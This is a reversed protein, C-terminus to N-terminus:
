TTYRSNVRINVPRGQKLPTKDQSNIPYVTSICYFTVSKFIALKKKIYLTFQIYSIINVPHLFWRDTEFILYKRVHKQLLSGRIFM